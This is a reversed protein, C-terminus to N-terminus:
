IDNVVEADVVNTIEAKVPIPKRPEPAPIDVDLDLVREYLARTEEGTEVEIEIKQGVPTGLRDLLEKAAAVRAVGIQGPSNAVEHLAAYADVMMPRFETELRRQYEERLVRYWKVPLNKPTGVWKGDIDRLQGRELEEFDLMEPKLLGM